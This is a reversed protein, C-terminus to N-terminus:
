PLKIGSGVARAYVHTREEQARRFAEDIQHKVISGVIVSQGAQGAPTMQPTPIGLKKLFDFDREEIAKKLEQFATDVSIKQTRVLTESADLIKNKLNQVTLGTEAEKLLLNQGAVSTESRVLATNAEVQEKEAVTKAAQAQLLLNQAKANQMQYALMAQDAVTSKGAFQTRGGVQIPAMASAPSGVALLPNLGAAKLDQVRRQVANDERERSIRLNEQNTIYERQATAQDVMRDTISQGAGIGALALSIWDMFFEVVGM